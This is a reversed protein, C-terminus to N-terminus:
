SAAGDRSPCGSTWARGETMAWRGSVTLDDVSGESSAGERHTGGTVDRGEVAVFGELAVGGMCSQIWDNYPGGLGSVVGNASRRWRKGDSASTVEKASIM